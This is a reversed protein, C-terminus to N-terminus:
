ERSQGESGSILSTLIFNASLVVPLIFLSFGNPFHKIFYKWVSLHHHWRRRFNGEDSGKGWLHVGGAEPVFYNRYGGRNLRLCLDTDEMYLFFREDFGGLSLFLEREVMMLTGAVSPVETVQSFDDLTYGRTEGFLRSFASGRSFIVNQWTPFNRCTPQFSGDPFRMRGAVAGVQERAAFVGLMETIAPSDIELDPNHFLLYDGVAVKAGQNCARAFGANTDNELVRAEPFIERVIEVSDDHSDNDVVILESPIEAMGRKLATLSFSLAPCSNHTVIIVSITKHSVQSM